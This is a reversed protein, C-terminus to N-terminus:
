QESCYSRFLSKVPARMLIRGLGDVTNGYQTIYSDMMRVQEDTHFMRYDIGDKRYYGRPDVTFGREQLANFDFHSKVKISLSTKIFDKKRLISFKKLEKLYTSFIDGTYGKAIMMFAMESYLAEHLENLLCSLAKAKSKSIENTGEKNGLFCDIKRSVDQKLDDISNWLGKRNDSNFDDYLKAIDKSYLRRKEHYGLIFDFWSTNLWHSLGYLELFMGSNHVIEVTLDLERCELYDEFSMTNTTVCIEEIEIAVTNTGLIAYQGFSRPNIRFKSEIGYKERSEPTNMETQPLLILQYMRVM